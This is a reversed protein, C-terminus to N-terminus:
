FPSTTTTNTPADKNAFVAFYSVLFGVGVTFFTAVAGIAIKVANKNLSETCSKSNFINNEPDQPM